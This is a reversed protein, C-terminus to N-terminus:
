DDLGEFLDGLVDDDSTNDLQEEAIVRLAALMDILREKADDSRDSALVKAELDNIRTILKELKADDLRAMMRGYKKSFTTKFKV